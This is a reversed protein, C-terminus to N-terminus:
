ETHIVKQLGWPSYGALSNQAHIKWALVSSHTAMGKELPDEWALSLFWPEWTAPLNKVLQAVLSAWSSPLGQSIKDLCNRNVAKSLSSVLLSPSPLPTM